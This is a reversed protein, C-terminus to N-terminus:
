IVFVETQEGKGYITLKDSVSPYYFQQNSKWREYGDHDM